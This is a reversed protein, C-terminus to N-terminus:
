SYMFSFYPCCFILSFIRLLVIQFYLLINYFVSFDLFIFRRINKKEFYVGTKKRGTNYGTVQSCLVSNNDGLSVPIFQTLCISYTPDKM